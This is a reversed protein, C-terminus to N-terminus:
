KYFHRALSDVELKGSCLNLERLSFGVLDGARGDETEEYDATIAYGHPHTIGNLIGLFRLVVQDSDMTRSYCQVSPHEAIDKNVPVSNQLLANMANADLEVLENLVSVMERYVERNKITTEEEYIKPEAKGDCRLTAKVTGSEKPECKPVGDELLPCWDPIFQRAKRIKYREMKGFDRDAEQCKTETYDYLHPCNSCRDIEVLAKKTM